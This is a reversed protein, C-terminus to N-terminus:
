PVVECSHGLRCDVGFSDLVFSILYEQWSSLKQLAPPKWELNNSSFTVVNGMARLTECEHKKMTFLREYWLNVMWAPSSIATLGPAQYFRLVM